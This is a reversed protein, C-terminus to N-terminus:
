TVSLEKEATFRDFEDEMRRVHEMDMNFDCDQGYMDLFNKEDVPSVGAIIKHSQVAILWTTIRPFRNELAAMTEAVKGSVADSAGGNKKGSRPNDTLMNRASALDEKMSDVFREIDLTHITGGPMLIDRILTIYFRFRMNLYASCCDAYHDNFFANYAEHKELLRKAGPDGANKGLMRIYDNTMRNKERISRVAEEMTKMGRYITVMSKPPFFPTKGHILNEMTQGVPYWRRKYRVLLVLLLGWCAVSPICIMLVIATGFRRLIGPMFAAFAGMHSAAMCLVLAVIGIWRRRM